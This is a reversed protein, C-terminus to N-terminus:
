RCFRLKACTGCSVGIRTQSPGRNRKYNKSVLLTCPQIETKRMTGLYKRPFQKVQVPELVYSHGHEFKPFCDEWVSLQVWGIHDLLACYFSWGSAVREPCHNPRCPNNSALWNDPTRQQAPSRELFSQEICGLTRLMSFFINWVSVCFLSSGLACFAWFSYQLQLDFGGVLWLERSNPKCRKVQCPGLPGTDLLLFIQYM